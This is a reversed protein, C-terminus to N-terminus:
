GRLGFPDGKFIMFPVGFTGAPGHQELDRALLYFFAGFVIPRNM